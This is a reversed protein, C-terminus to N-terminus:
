LFSANIEFYPSFIWLFDCSMILKNYAYFLRPNIGGTNKEPQGSSLMCIVYRGINVGCVFIDANRM